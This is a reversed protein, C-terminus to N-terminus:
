LRGDPGWAMQAPHGPVTASTSQLTLQGAYNANISQACDARGATLLAGALGTIAIM